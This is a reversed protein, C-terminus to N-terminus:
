NFEIVVTHQCIGTINKLLIYDYLIQLNWLNQM